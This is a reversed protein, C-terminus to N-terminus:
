NFYIRYEGAAKIKGGRVPQALIVVGHLKDPNLSSAAIMRTEQQGQWPALRTIDSVTHAYTIKRDRNEGSKIDVTQNTTYTIVTLEYPVRQGAPLDPLTIQFGETTMEVQILAVDNKQRAKRLAQDLESRQSGAFSWSGNVVMNPTYSRGQELIGAYDRQRETCADLSLTDKWRLHNWYTVHCGLVILGNDPNHAIDGLIEDVAPCSSCSQSTFLEVVVPGKDAESRAPGATILFALLFLTFGVPNRLM